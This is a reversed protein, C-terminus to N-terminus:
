QRRCCPKSQLGFFIKACKLIYTLVWKELIEVFEQDAAGGAVAEM